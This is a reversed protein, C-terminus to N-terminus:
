YFFVEIMVDEHMRVSLSTCYILNSLFATWLVTIQCGTPLFWRVVEFCCSVVMFVYLGVVDVNSFHVSLM